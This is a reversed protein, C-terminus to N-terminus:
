LVEMILNLAQDLAFVVMSGVLFLLISIGYEEFIQEM